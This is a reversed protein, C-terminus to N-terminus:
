TPPCAAERRVEWQQRADCHRCREQGCRCLDLLLAAMDDGRVLMREMQARELRLRQAVESVPEGMAYVREYFADHEAPTFDRGDGLAENLTVRAQTTRGEALHGRAARAAAELAAERARARCMGCLGGELSIPWESEGCGACCKM